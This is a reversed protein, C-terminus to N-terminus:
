SHVSILAIGGWLAMCFDARDLINQPTLDSKSFLQKVVVVMVTKGYNKWPFHSAHLPISGNKEGTPATGWLLEKPLAPVEWHVRNNSNLLLIRKSKPCHLDWTPNSPSPPACSNNDLSTGVWKFFFPLPPAYVSVASPAEENPFERVLTWSGLFPTFLFFFPLLFGGHPYVGLKQLHMPHPFYCWGRQKEVSFPRKFCNRHNLHM